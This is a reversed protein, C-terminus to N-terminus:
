PKGGLHRRMKYRITNHLQEPLDQINFLVKGSLHLTLFGSKGSPIKDPLEVQEQPYAATFGIDTLEYPTDNHIGITLKGKSSEAIEYTIVTGKEILKGQYTFRVTMM